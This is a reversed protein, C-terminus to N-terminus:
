PSSSHKIVQRLEKYGGIFQMEGSDAREFIVPASRIPVGAMITLEDPTADVGIIRYEYPVSRIECALKALSCQPCHEQKGYIILM